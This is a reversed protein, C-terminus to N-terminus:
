FEVRIQALPNQPDGDTDVLDIDLDIQELPTGTLPADILDSPYDTRFRAAHVYLMGHDIRVPRIGAYRVVDMDVLGEIELGSLAARVAKALALYGLQTGATKAAETDGRPDELVILVRWIARSDQSVLGGVLTNVETGVIPEDSEITLLAAPTIGTTAESLREQSPEGAFRGVFKFTTPALTALQAFLADEISDITAPDSM